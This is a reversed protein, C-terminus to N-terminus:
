PTSKKDLSGFIGASELIRALVQIFVMFICRMRNILKDILQLLVGMVNRFFYVNKLNKKVNHCRLLLRLCHYIRRNPLFSPRM